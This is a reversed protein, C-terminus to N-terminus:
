VRTKRRYLVAAIATIMVSAVAVSLIARGSTYSSNFDTSRSDEAPDNSASANNASVGSQIPTISQDKGTENARELSKVPDWTALADSGLAKAEIRHPDNNIIDRESDEDSKKIEAAIEESSSGSLAKGVASILAYNNGRWDEIVRLNTATQLNERKRLFALSQEAAHTAILFCASREGSTLQSSFRNGTQAIVANISETVVRKLDAYEVASLPQGYGSYLIDGRASQLVPDLIDCLEQMAAVNIDKRELESQLLKSLALYQGFARSSVTKDAPLSRMTATIVLESTEILANATQAERYSPVVFGPLQREARLVHTLVASDLDAHYEQPISKKAIGISNRLVQEAQRENPGGAHAALRMLAADLESTQNQAFVPMQRVVVHMVFLTASLALLDKLCRKTRSM